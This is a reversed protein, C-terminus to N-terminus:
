ASSRMYKMIIALVLRKYKWVASFFPIVKLNRIYFKLYGLMQLKTLEGRSISELELANALQKNYDSWNASLRKYGGEGKQALRAVETGPYPVM